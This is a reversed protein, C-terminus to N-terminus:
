GTKKIKKPQFLSKSTIRRQLALLVAADVLGVGGRNPTSRRGVLFKFKTAVAAAAIRQEPRIENQLLM